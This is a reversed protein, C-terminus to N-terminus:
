RRLLQSYLWMTRVITPVALATFGAGMAIKSSDGMGYALFLLLLAYSGITLSLLSAGVTESREFWKARSVSGITAIAAGLVTAWAWGSTWGHPSTWGLSTPESILASIGFFILAVYGTTLGVQFSKIPSWAWVEFRTLRRKQRQKHVPKPVTPFQTDIEM